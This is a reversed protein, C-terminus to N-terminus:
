TARSVMALSTALTEAQSLTELKSLAEEAAKQASESASQRLHDL